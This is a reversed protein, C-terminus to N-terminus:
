SNLPCDLSGRERLARAGAGVRALLQRGRAGGAMSEARARWPNPVVAAFEAGVCGAMARSPRRGVGASWCRALERLARAGAVRRERVRWCSGGVRAALWPKRVAAASEARGGRIGSGRLWGHRLVAAERRGRFLWAYGRVRRARALGVGAAFARPVVVCLGGCATRGLRLVGRPGSCAASLMGM